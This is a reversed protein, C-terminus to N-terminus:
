LKLKLAHMPVSRRHGLISCFHRMFLTSKSNESLIYGCKQVVYLLFLLKATCRGINIKPRMKKQRKWEKWM